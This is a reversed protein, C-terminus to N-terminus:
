FFVPSTIQLLIQFTFCMSMLRRSVEADPRSGYYLRCASRFSESAVFCDDEIVIVSSTLADAEQTLGQDFGRAFDVRSKPFTDARQALLVHPPLCLHIHINIHPICIAHQLKM